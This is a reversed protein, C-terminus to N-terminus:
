GYLLAAGAISGGCQATIYLVARLVSLKRTALAAVTVAPNMHGGSISGFCRTLTAMALGTTLAIHLGGLVDFMIGYLTLIDSLMYATKSETKQTLKESRSNDESLLCVKM